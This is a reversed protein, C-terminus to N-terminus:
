TAGPPQGLEPSSLGENQLMAPGAVIKSLCHRVASTSGKFDGRAQRWRPLAGARLQGRHGHGQAQRIVFVGGDYLHRPRDMGKLPVGEQFGQGLLGLAMRRQGPSDRREVGSVTEPCM